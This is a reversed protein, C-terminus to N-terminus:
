IRITVGAPTTGEWALAPRRCGQESAARSTWFTVASALTAFFARLGWDNTPHAHVLSVLSLAVFLAVSVDAGDISVSKAFAVLLVAAALPVAQLVVEKPLFFAPGAGNPPLDFVLVVALFGLGLAGAVARM